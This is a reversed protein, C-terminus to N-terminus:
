VFRVWLFGAMSIVLFPFVSRQLLYLERTSRFLAIHLGIALNNIHLLTCNSHSGVAAIPSLLVGLWCLGLDLPPVLPLRARTVVIRQIYGHARSHLLCQLASSDNSIVDRQKLSLSSSNVMKVWRQLPMFNHLISITGCQMGEFTFKESLQHIIMPFYLFEPSVNIGTFKAM